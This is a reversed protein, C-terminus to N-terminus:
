SGEYEQYILNGCAKCHSADLDHYKLGCATCTVAQKSVSRVLVQAFSAIQWPILIVGTYIMMVTVLRGLGSIPVIDGFGVTTMTVTTFYLADFFNRIQRPNAPGEIEHIVGSAIFVLCFLTFLIRLTRLHMESIHASLAGKDQMFRLLRLIRFLRLLRVFQWHGFTLFLPLIALLDIIALPKFPYRWSFDNLWWRIIYELAFLTTIVVEATRVIRHTRDSVPFTEIVFTLCLILVFAAIVMELITAARMDHRAFLSRIREKLETM